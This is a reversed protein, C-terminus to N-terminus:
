LRKTMREMLLYVIAEGLAVPNVISLMVPETLTVEFYYFVNRGPIIGVDGKWVVGKDENYPDMQLSIYEGDLGEQSYRLVVESFIQLGSGPWAPLNTAALTEELKFTYPITDAQFETPSIRKGEVPAQSGLRFQVSGNALVNPVRVYVNMNDSALYRKEPNVNTYLLDTLNPSIANGFNEGDLQPPENQFVSVPSQATLTYRINSKPLFGEPIQNLM